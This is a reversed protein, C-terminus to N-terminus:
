ISFLPWCSHLKFINPIVPSSAQFLAPDMDDQQPRYPLYFIKSEMKPILSIWQLVKLQSHWLKLNTNWKIIKLFVSKTVRGSKMHRLIPALEKIWFISSYWSFDNHPHSCHPLIHCVIDCLYLIVAYFASSFTYLCTCILCWHIHTLDVTDWLRNEWFPNGM